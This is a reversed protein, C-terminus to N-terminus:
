LIVKWINIYYKEATNKAANSNTIQDTISSKLSSVFSKNHLRESMVVHLLKHQIGNM